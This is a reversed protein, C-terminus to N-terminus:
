RADGGSDHGPSAGVLHSLPQGGNGTRSLLHLLHKPATFILGVWLGILATLTAAPLSTSLRGKPIRRVALGVVLAILLMAQQIVVTTLLDAKAPTTSFTVCDM